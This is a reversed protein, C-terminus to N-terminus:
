LEPELFGNENCRGANYAEQYPWYESTSLPM